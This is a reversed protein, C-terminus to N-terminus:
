HILGIKIQISPHRQSTKEKAVGEKTAMIPNSVGLQGDINNGCAWLETKDNKFNSVAMMHEPGAAIFFIM